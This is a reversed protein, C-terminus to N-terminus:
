GLAFREFLSELIQRESSLNTFRSETEITPDVLLEVRRSLPSLNTVVDDGTVITTVQTNIPILNVVTDDNMVHIRHTYTVDCM